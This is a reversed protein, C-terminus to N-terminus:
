PTVGTPATTLQALMLATARVKSTMAVPDDLDTM